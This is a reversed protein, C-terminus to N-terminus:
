LQFNWEQQPYHVQWIFDEYCSIEENETANQSDDEKEGKYLVSGVGGTDMQEAEGTDGTDFQHLDDNKGAM